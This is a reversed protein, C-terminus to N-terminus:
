QIVPMDCAHGAFHVPLIAATRSTIRTQAEEPDLNITDSCVDAFVPHSGCYLPANATAVFTIPTTIAESGPGVGAALCALHLAATGNTVAVAYRAGCVAAFAEEFAAVQPGTTLYDSRLAAVVAEIDEDDIWQKGYPIYENVGM